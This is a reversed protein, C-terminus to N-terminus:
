SDLCDKARPRDAPWRSQWSQVHWHRASDSGPRAPVTSPLSRPPDIAAPDLSRGWAIMLTQNAFHNQQELTAIEIRTIEAVLKTVSIGRATRCAIAPSRGPRSRRSQRRYSESSPRLIARQRHVAARTRQARTELPGSCTICPEGSRGVSPPSSSIGPEGKRHPFEIGLKRTISLICGVVHPGLLDHLRYIAIRDSQRHPAVTAPHKSGPNSQRAEPASRERPESQISRFCSPLFRGTHM